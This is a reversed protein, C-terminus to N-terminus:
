FGMGLHIIGKEHIDKVIRVLNNTIKKADIKEDFDILQHLDRQHLDLILTTERNTEYVGRKSLEISYQYDVQNYLPQFVAVASKQLYKM